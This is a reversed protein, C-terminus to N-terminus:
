LAIFVARLVIAGFVGWLLASHQQRHTIKFGRFLILFVFLNDISLSTEITYGSVFELAAQRGQEINLWFAFGGAALAVFLSWLWALKPQPKENRSPPLLADATILLLVAAHFGIWWLLPAGAIQSNWDLPSHVLM